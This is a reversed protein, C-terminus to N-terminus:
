RAGRLRRLTLSIVGVGLLLATTPEPVIGTLRFALDHPRSEWEPSTQNLSSWAEHIYPEEWASTVWYWYQNDGAYLPDTHLAISIGLATEDIWVPTKLDAAYGYVPRPNTEGPRPPANGYFVELAAGLDLETVGTTTYLWAEFYHGSTPVKGQTTSYPQFTQGSEDFGYGYTGWWHLDTLWVGDDIDVFWRDQDLGDRQWSGEYTNSPASTDSPWWAVPGGDLLDVRHPGGGPTGNSYIIPDDAISDSAAPFAAIVGVLCLVASLLHVKKM